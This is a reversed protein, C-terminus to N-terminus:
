RLLTISGSKTANIGTVTKYNIIFYYVDTPLLKGNVTGNWGKNANTTQFVQQGWRNYISLQYQLLCSSNFPKFEENIGDGNPSFANVDNTNQGASYTVKMTDLGSCGNIDLVKLWYNNLGNLAISPTNEGTIWNYNQYGNLTYIEGLCVQLNSPLFNSPKSFINILVFSDRAKCGISDSVEVWYLGIDKVKISSSISGTNWVYKKYNGPYLNVYDGSCISTDQQLKPNLNFSAILNLTRISDCIATNFTDRYIGTINYGFYTEGGCISKTISDRIYGDQKIIITLISDCSNALKFTTDFTSTHGLYNGGFCISKSITDRKNTIIIQHQIIISDCGLYNKFSTTVVTNATYSISNFVVSGCGQFTDKLNTPAPLVTLNLTVISDCGYSNTLTDNYVGSVTHNQFTDKYCITKNINAFTSQYCTTTLPANDTKDWTVATSLTANNKNLSADKLTTGKGENSHYYAVLGTENGGLCKDYNAQIETANRPYNWIRIEDMKGAFGSDVNGIGTMSGFYFNPFIINSNPNLPQHNNTKSDVLIGNVYLKSTNNAYDRVGAVHYWTNPLFGGTPFYTCPSNDRDSNGNPGDVVFCLERKKAVQPWGFGLVIDQTTSPIDTAAILKSRTDVTTNNNDFYSGNFWTEWTFGTPPFYKKFNAQPPTIKDRGSLKVVGNCNPNAIPCNNVLVNVSDTKINVPAFVIDDIAFDNGQAILNNNTISINATTTSGSNWQISFQKWTCSTLNATLITGVANGNIKFVLQAPNQAVISQVWGSFVYNTNAQVNVTQKWIDANAITSGDIMMMNGGNSTHDKCASFASLWVNPNTAIHYIGQVGGATSPHYTYDTQFSTNGNEFDGNIILNTGLTQTNYYYTTNATPAVTINASNNSVTGNSASWCFGVGSDQVNLNFSVGNCITTDSNKILGNTFQTTVPINKEVSDICGNTQTVVLKVNYSNYAAYNVISSQNTNNTTNNGFNWLFSSTNSTENKFTIQKPNCFSRTFTFDPKVTCPIACNKVVVQKCFSSQTPLGEDITLNINYTGATNYSIQPPTQSS